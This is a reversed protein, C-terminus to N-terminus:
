MISLAKRKRQQLPSKRLIKLYMIFGRIVSRAIVIGAAVDIILILYELFPRIVDELNLEM